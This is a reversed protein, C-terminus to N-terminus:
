AKYLDYNCQSDGYACLGGKAAISWWQENTMKGVYDLATLQTSMRDLNTTGLLPIFGLPHSLLWVLAVVSKDAIGMQKGVDKLARLIKKQRKGHRKFLRNLGGLPDGGLPCWALPHLGHQYAHDALASNYDMYSPNWVSAEFEHTMLKIGNGDPAMADLSKQLLYFKSPFHNSLGFNRV